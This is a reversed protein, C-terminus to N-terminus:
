IPSSSERSGRARSAFEPRASNNYRHDDQRRQVHQDGLCRIRNVQEIVAAAM